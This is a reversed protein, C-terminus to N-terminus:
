CICDELAKTLDNFLNEVQTLVVNTGSVREMNQISLIVQHMEINGAWLKFKEASEVMRSSPIPLSEPDSQSASIVDQFLSNIRIVHPAVPNVNSDEM